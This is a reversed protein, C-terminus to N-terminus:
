DLKTILGSNRKFVYIADSLIEEEAMESHNVEYVMHKLHSIEENEKDVPILIVEHISSPLIYYDSKTEKAFDMLFSEYLIAAAGFNKSTSSVVYMQPGKAESYVKAMMEGIIPEIMEETVRVSEDMQKQISREIEWIMKDKMMECIVDEMPVIKGPFLTRTNYFAQNQVTKLDVRWKEM